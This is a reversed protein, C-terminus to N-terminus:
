GGGGGFLFSYQRKNPRMCQFFLHLNAPLSLLHVLQINHKSFPRSAQMKLGSSDLKLHKIASQLRFRSDHLEEPYTVKKM